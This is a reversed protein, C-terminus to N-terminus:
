NVSVLQLGCIMADNVVRGGSAATPGGPRILIELNEGASVNVAPFVVYQSGEVWDTNELADNGTTTKKRGYDRGAVSVAYDGYYLPQVGHGYLYLAYNGPPVHHLIVQSNGGQNNVPYNFSNLMPAKVGMKGDNGWGGGLNVFQVAIPSPEGNAFKLGSETHDNNFGISASNWFDGDQGVAAAGTQKTPDARGPGFDINFIPGSAAATMASVKVSRISNAALKVKGFSTKVAFDSDVFAVTLKDGNVTFVKAANSSVCEVSRIDKVALKIKGLLASQFGLYKEMSDGVVRSGDRLEVTLRPPPNTDAADARVQGAFFIAIGLACFLQLTTKM